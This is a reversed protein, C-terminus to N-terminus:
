TWAVELVPPLRPLLREAHSVAEEGDPRLPPWTARGVEQGLVLTVERREAFTRMAAM